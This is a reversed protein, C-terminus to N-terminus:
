VVGSVTLRTRLVGSLASEVTLVRNCINKAFTADVTSAGPIGSENDPFWFDGGITACSPAEYASPERM